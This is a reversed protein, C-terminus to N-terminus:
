CRAPATTDRSPARRLTDQAHRAPRLHTGGSRTSRVAPAANSSANRFVVFAEGSYGWKTGPPRLPEIEAGTRWNPLGTTHSLVHRITIDGLIPEDLDDFVTLALHGLVPKVLSAAKM